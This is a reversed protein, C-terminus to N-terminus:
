VNLFVFLAFFILSFGGLSNCIPSSKELPDEFDRSNREFDADEPPRHTERLRSPLHHSPPTTSRVPAVTITNFIDFHKRELKEVQDDGSAEFDEDDSNFPFFSGEVRRIPDDSLQDAFPILRRPASDVDSPGVNKTLAMLHPSDASVGLFAFFILPISLTVDLNPWM